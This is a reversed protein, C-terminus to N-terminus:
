VKIDSQRIFEHFKALSYIEDINNHYGYKNITEIPNCSFAGYGYQIKYLLDATQEDLKYHINATYYNLFYVFKPTLEEIQADCMQSISHMMVKINYLKKAKKLEMIAEELNM